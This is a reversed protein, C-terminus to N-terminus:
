TKLCEPVFAPQYGNLCRLINKAQEQGLEFAVHVYGWEYDATYEGTFWLRQDVPHQLANIDNFTIGSAHHSYAGMFLPDTSFNHRMFEIPKTANPYVRKLVHCLEEKVEDDSQKQSKQSAKGTITAMLINTSPFLGERCYNTWHYCTEGGNTVFMIYPSKDWFQEKFRMFIRSYHGMVLMKFADTKWTPLEPIFKVQKSQLVAHSFTTLVYDATFFDGNQLHVGYKKRNSLKEVITARHKLLIKDKFPKVEELLPHTYGREDTVVYDTGFFGTFGFNKVSMSEPESGNEFDLTFYEIAKKLETHAKWGVDTLAQKLNIDLKHKGNEVNLALLKLKEQLEECDRQVTEKSYISGGEINRFTVNKISYDEKKMKLEYRKALRFVEHNTETLHIYGAGLSVTEGAFQASKVRGGIYDNAELVLFDNFNNKHFYTAAGLGSYGAGLILVKVHRNGFDSLAINRHM